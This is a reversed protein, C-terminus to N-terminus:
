NNQHFEYVITTTSYIQAFVALMFATPIRESGWEAWGWSSPWGEADSHLLLMSSSGCILSSGFSLFMWVSQECSARSVPFQLRKSCCLSCGGSDWVTHLCLLEWVGIGDWSILNSLSLSSLLSSCSAFIAGDGRVTFEALLAVWLLKHTLPAFLWLFASCCTFPIRRELPFCLACMTCSFFTLDRFAGVEREEWGPWLMWLHCLQLSHPLPKLKAQWSSTWMRQCVLSFGYLQATHRFLKVVTLMSLLCWRMWVPSFGKRHWTQPFHKLWDACRLVWKLSWVLSLAPQLRAGCELNVSVSVQGDTFAKLPKNKPEFLTCYHHKVTHRIQRATFHPVYLSIIWENHQQVSFPILPIMKHFM